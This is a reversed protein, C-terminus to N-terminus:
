QCCFKNQKEIENKHNDYYFQGYKMAQKKKYVQQADMLDRVRKKQRNQKCQKNSCYCSHNVVPHQNCEICLNKADEIKIIEVPFKMDQLRQKTCNVCLNWNTNQVISAIDELSAWKDLHNCDWQFYCEGGLLVTKLINMKAFHFVDAM